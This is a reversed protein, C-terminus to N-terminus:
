PSAVSLMRRLHRDSFFADWRTLNAHSHLMPAAHSGWVRCTERASWLSAADLYTFVRGLVDDPLRPARATPRVPAATSLVIAKARPRKSPPAICPEPKPERKMTRASVGEERTQRIPASRAATQM